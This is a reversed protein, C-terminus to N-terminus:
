ALAVAEGKGDYSQLGLAEQLSSFLVISKEKM